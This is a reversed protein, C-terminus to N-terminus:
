RHAFHRGTRIADARTERRRDIAIIAPPAPPAYIADRIMVVFDAIGHAIVVARGVQANRIHKEIAAYEPYDRTIDM